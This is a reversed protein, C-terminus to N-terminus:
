RATRGDRVHLQHLPICTQLGCILTSLSYQTLVPRGNLVLIENLVTKVPVLSDENTTGGVGGEEGGGTSTAPAASPAQSGRNCSCFYAIVDIPQLLWHRTFSDGEFRPDHNSLSLTSERLIPRNKLPQVVCFFRISAMTSSSVTIVRITSVVGFSVAGYFRQEFGLVSITRVPTGQKKM